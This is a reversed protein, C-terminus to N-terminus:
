NPLTRKRAAAVNLVPQGGIAEMALEGSPVDVFVTMLDDANLGDM